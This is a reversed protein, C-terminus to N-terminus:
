LKTLTGLQTRIAALETDQAALRDMVGAVAPQGDEAPIGNWARLFAAIAHELRRIRHWFPALVCAFGSLIMALDVLLNLM